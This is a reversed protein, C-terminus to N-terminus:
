RNEFSFRNALASIADDSLEPHHAKLWAETRLGIELVSPAQWLVPAAEYLEHEIGKIRTLLDPAATAGVAAVVHDEDSGARWRGPVGVFALVSLSLQEDIM